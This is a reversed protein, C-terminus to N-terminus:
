MGGKKPASVVIFRRPVSGDVTIAQFKRLEFLADSIEARTGSVRAAVDRMTLGAPHPRLAALVAEQRQSGVMRPPLEELAPATREKRFWGNCICQLGIRGPCGPRHLWPRNM